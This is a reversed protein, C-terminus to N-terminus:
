LAYLCTSGDTLPVVCPTVYGRIIATIFTTCPFTVTLAAKKASIQQNVIQYFVNNRFQM